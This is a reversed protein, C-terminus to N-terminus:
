VLKFLAEVVNQKNKIATDVITRVVVFNEAGKNSKFQGSVKQKVKVNRIARESGNNDAPVDYHQLFVWLNDIRKDLRKKLTILKPPGELNEAILKKSEKIILQVKSKFKDTPARKMKSKLKLAQGILKSFKSSWQEKALKKFYNLERQLHALCIQHFKSKTKLQAAWCDSILISNPFGDKFNDEVAKFGRTESVAIFTNDATQWTWVWHTKGNIVCGTEDTGVVESGAVKQRIDEYVAKCKNTFSDLKNVITGQSLKIGLIQHLFEKIRVISLYQRASLYNILVEINPGYCVSSTASKPYQGKNLIGCKCQVSYIQHETTIPSILPIDIVQRKGILEPSAELLEGCCTCKCPAHFAINDPEANMELTTGKHGPQGGTKRNTKKRLSTNKKVRNQDQSPPISSTSSDKKSELKDELESVTNRLNANEKKLSDVRSNLDANEKKLSDVRSNTDVIAQQLKKLKKQLGM